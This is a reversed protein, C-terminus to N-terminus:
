IRTVIPTKTVIITNDSQNKLIEQKKKELEEMALEIEKLREEPKQLFKDFLTLNSKGM